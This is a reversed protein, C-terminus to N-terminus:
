KTAKRKNAITTLMYNGTIFTPLALIALLKLTQFMNLYLWFSAFLTFIGGLCAHFALASPSFSFSTFDIGARPVLILFLAFPLAALLTFANSVISPPRKEPQRFMHIIEPKPRYMDGTQASKTNAAASATFTLKLNTITWVTPNEIVSDGVILDLLYDGSQYLFDKAKAALDLDFKYVSSSDHEAVFFIEQQTDVQTLRVFAQHVAVAEGSLSDRLLFKLILKQHVDAEVSGDLRQPYTIKKMKPATSQDSDAVGVEFDRDFINFNANSIRILLALKLM